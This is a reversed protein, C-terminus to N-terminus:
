PKYFRLVYVTVAGRPASGWGWVTWGPEVLVGKHTPSALWARWVAEPSPGSGLVEGYVGPPLGHAMAQQGPGRGEFDVHALEGSDALEIARDQCTASLAKDIPPLSQRTDM